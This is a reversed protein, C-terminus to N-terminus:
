PSCLPRSPATNGPLAAVAREVSRDLWIDSLGSRQEARAIGIETWSGPSGDPSAEIRVEMDHARALTVVLGGRTLLAGLLLVDHGAYDAPLVTRRGEARGRVIVTGKPMLSEEAPTLVALECNGGGATARILASATLNASGVLVYRARRAKGNWYSATGPFGNPCCGSRLTAAGQRAYCPM